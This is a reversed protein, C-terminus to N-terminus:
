FIMFKEIYDNLKELEQSQKEIKKEIKEREIFYDQIVTECEEIESYLHFKNEVSNKHVTGCIPCIIEEETLESEVFDADALLENYVSEASSYVEELEKM